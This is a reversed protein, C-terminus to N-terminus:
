GLTEMGFTIIDQEGMLCNYLSNATAPPALFIISTIIGEHYDRIPKAFTKREPLFKSSIAGGSGDIIIKKYKEELAKLRDDSVPAFIITIEYVKKYM